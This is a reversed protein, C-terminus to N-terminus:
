PVRREKEIMEAASTESSFYPELERSLVELDKAWRPVRPLLGTQFKLIYVKVKGKRIAVATGDSVLKMLVGRATARAVGVRRAVEDPTAPGENLIRIVSEERTMSKPEM